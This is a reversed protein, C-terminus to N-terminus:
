SYLFINFICNNYIYPVTKTKPYENENRKEIIIRIHGPNEKSKNAQNVVTNLVNNSQQNSQNSSSNNPNVIGFCGESAAVTNSGNKDYNGGVHIMVGAAVDSKERYGMNVSTENSEAHVVESGYQTLKLATTGNGKPYGDKMVEGAYHNINGDKPEFSVNSATNGNGSEITWADRTISFTMRFNKDETDTVTAKYLDVQTTLNRGGTYGLVRQEATAGTKEKTITIIPYKGNPDIFKLPNNMCYNYSSWGYFKEQLLDQTFWRGLFDDYMRNGYDLFNVDGVIQKEKGNFLYRTQAAPYYSPNWVKGFPYYNVM